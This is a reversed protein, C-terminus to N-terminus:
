TPALCFITPRTLPAHQDDRLGGRQRNHPRQGPSRQVHTGHALALALVLRPHEVLAHLIRESRSELSLVVRPLRLEHELGLLASGRGLLAGVGGVLAGVGGVLAGVDGLLLGADRAGDGAPVAPLGHRRPRLRVRRTPASISRSEATSASFCASRRM